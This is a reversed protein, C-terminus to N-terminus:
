ILNLGHSSHNPLKGTTRENLPTASMVASQATFFVAHQEKVLKSKSKRVPIIDCKVWLSRPWDSKESCWETVNLTVRDKAPMEAVPRGASFPSGFYAVYNRASPYMAGNAVTLRVWKGSIEVM